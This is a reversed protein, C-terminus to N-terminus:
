EIYGKRLWEELIPSWDVHDYIDVGRKLADLIRDATEEATRGTTDVQWVDEYKEEAKALCYDVFEAMLNERVKKEPYGRQELRKKLEEPNTRLVIVLDAPIKVECFLHGELIVDDMDKTEWIAKLRLKRTDVYKERVLDKVTILPYKLRRSLIEAVITKGTGPVGTIIIRM